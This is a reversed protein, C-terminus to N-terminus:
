IRLHVQENPSAAKRGGDVRSLRAALVPCQGSGYLKRCVGM